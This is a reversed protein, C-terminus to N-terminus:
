HPRNVRILVGKLDKHKGVATHIRGAFADFDPDVTCVIIGSHLPNEHHLRIFHRRNLTLLARGDRHAFTLVERDPWSRGAHGTDAITLVDHGQERLKMVVPQPFNENSYLRAM